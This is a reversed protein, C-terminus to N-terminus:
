ENDHHVDKDGFDRFGVRFDHFHLFFRVIKLACIQDILDLREKAGLLFLALRVPEQDLSCFITLNVRIVFIWISSFCRVLKLLVCEKM